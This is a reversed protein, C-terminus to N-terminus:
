ESTAPGPRGCEPCRLLGALDYGCRPCLGRKRRRESPLLPKLRPANLWCSVMLLGAIALALVNHGVGSWLIHRETYRGALAAQFDATVEPGYTAAFFALAEQPVGGRIRNLDRRITLTTPAWFGRRKRSIPWPQLEVAWDFGARDFGASAAARDSAFICVGDATQYGYAAPPIGWNVLVLPEEDRLLGGVFSEDGPLTLADAILIALFLLPAWPNELAARALFSLRGRGRGASQRM